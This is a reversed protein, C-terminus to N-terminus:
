CPVVESGPWPQAVERLLHLDVKAYIATSTPRRHCLVAGILDLTEGERLMRTALSHRLVHAGHSAAEIGARRIARAVCESVANSRLPRIPAWTRLFVHDDIAQPRCDELYTLVADGADQPLPLWVERRGKGCVRLQGRRWDIDGLRLRVIDGARLGLRAMLLLMARDRQGSPFRDECTEIIREVADAPLYLPLRALRVRPVSPVAGILDASCIGQTVLYRLFSRVVTTVAPGSRREHHKVRYLVFARLGAANYRAPEEGLRELLARVVPAYSTVTREALGRQYSMWACYSELLGPTCSVPRRARQVIGTERLHELFKGVRSPTRAYRRHNARLCRCRPLHRTFRDLLGEDFAAVSTKRKALWRGLHVADYLHAQITKFAYGRANLAEAFGDLFPGTPELRHRRLTHTDAFYKDLM